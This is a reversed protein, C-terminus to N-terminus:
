DGAPRGAAPHHIWINPETYTATGDPDAEVPSLAGPVVYRGAGPMALGTEREWRSTPQRIVLSRRAFGRVTAGLGLHLRLWPDFATGDARVWDAYDAIDILPYRDKRTPRLPAIVSAFGAARAAALAHGVLREALGSRRHGAAVSVSLLSLCDFGSDPEEVATTVIEDFGSPAPGAGTGYRAPVLNMAGVIRGEERVAFQLDPYLEYIESWGWNGPSEWTMFGPLNAAVLEDIGEADGTGIPPEAREAPDVSSAAV